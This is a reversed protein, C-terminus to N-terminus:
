RHWDDTSRGRLEGLTLVEVAPPKTDAPYERMDPIAVVPIAGFPPSANNLRQITTSLQGPEVRAALLLWIGDRYSLADARHSKKQDFELHIWGDEALRRHVLRVFCLTGLRVFFAWSADMYEDRVPSSLEKLRDETSGLVGRVLSMEDSKLLMAAAIREVILNYFRREEPEQLVVRNVFRLRTKLMERVAAFQQDFGGDRPREGVGVEDESAPIDEVAGEPIRDQVREARDLEQLGVELGGPLKVSTIRQLFRGTGAPNIASYLLLISAGFLILTTAKIQKDLDFWGTLGGVLLFVTAALATVAAFRLWGQKM